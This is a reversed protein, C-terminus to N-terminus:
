NQGTKEKFFNIINEDGEYCKTGDFLLPVSILDYKINCIEAKDVLEDTNAKNKFVEKSEFSIKESINNEKIYKEVNECYSCGDGYYFIIESKNEINNKPSENKIKWFYIGFIILGIIILISLTIVIIKKKM